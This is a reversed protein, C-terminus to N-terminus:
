RSTIDCYPLPKGTPLKLWNPKRCARMAVAASSPTLPAIVGL